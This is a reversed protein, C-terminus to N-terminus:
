RYVEAFTICRNDGYERTMALARVARPSGPTMPRSQWTAGSRAIVRYERRIGNSICIDILDGYKARVGDTNLYWQWFSRVHAPLFLRPLRRAIEVVGIERVEEITGHTLVKSYCAQKFGDTDEEGPGFDYEWLLRRRKMEDM